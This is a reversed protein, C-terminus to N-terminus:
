LEDVYARELERVYRELNFFQRARQYANEGLTACRPRDNLLAVIAAAFRRPDPGLPPRLKGSHGDVVVSPLPAAGPAPAYEAPVTCDVLLGTEGDVVVEPINNLSAAVVPLRALGAEILVNGLPERIAPHAMLSMERMLAPADLRFGLFRLSMERMLAPADLRFGLFRVRRDPWIGLRRAEQELHSRLPGDGVLVFCVEPAKRWVHPIARLLFVHGKPTDLRGVTGVVPVELGIGLMERLPSGCAEVPPKPIGNHVVRIRDGPVQVHQTLVTRAAESNALLLDAIRYLLRDVLRMAATETWATGHEHAVIRDVGALRAAVRGWANATFGQTHVVDVQERRMLGAMQVLVTLDFRTRRKMIWFPVDLRQLESEYVGGGSVCCVCHTFRTRDITALSEVLLREVGGGGLSATVHMVNLARSRM